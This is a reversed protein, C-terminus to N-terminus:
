PHAAPGAAARASVLESSTRNLRMAMERLMVRAMSPFANLMDSLCEKGIRLTALDSAARVTATRPIDCLIGIEGVIENRGFRALEIDGIPSRATVVAEGTLILYASDGMDGQHFLTDGASFRMAESTFAILKLRSPEIGQFLPVRRLIEVEDALLSM